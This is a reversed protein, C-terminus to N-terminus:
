SPGPVKVSHRIKQTNEIVRAIRDGAKGDLNGLFKKVLVKRGAADAEPNEMGQNILEILSKADYAIRVGKTKLARRVFDFEYVRAAATDDEHPYAM